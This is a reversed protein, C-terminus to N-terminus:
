APKVTREDHTSDESEADADSEATSTALRTANLIHTVLELRSKVGFLVMLNSVHRKVTSEAYHMVEAIETNSLGQCLLSLVEKEIDTLKQITPLQLKLSSLDLPEASPLYQVLRNMAQPAVITGGDVADVVAKIIEQPRQSKLVYGNGGLQLIKLMVDDRDLATIGLFYPKNKLKRTAELLMTGDMVPMHIDALIVDVKRRKLFALAEKGSNVVGVVKIRESLSFYQQLSKLVIPDDDVLLVTITKEM